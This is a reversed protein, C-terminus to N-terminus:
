KEFYGADFLDFQNEYYDNNYAPLYDCANSIITSNEINNTNSYYQNYFDNQLLDHNNEYQDLLEASVYTNNYDNSVNIYSKNIDSEYQYLDPM